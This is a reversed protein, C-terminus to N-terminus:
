VQEADALAKNIKGIIHVPRNDYLRSIAGEVSQKLQKTKDVLERLQPRLGLSERQLVERRRGAAAIMERYKAEQGHKQQLDRMIKDRTRASRLSELRELEGSTLKAIASDVAVKLVDLSIDSSDTLFHGNEGEALRQGLFASLEFLDDLLKQKFALSALKSVLADVVEGCEEEAIEEEGGAGAEAVGIDWCVAPDEEAKETVEIDWSVTPEGGAESGAEAGSIDWSVAPGVEEGVGGAEVGIDWSVTPEGGESDGGATGLDWSISPEEAAVALTSRDDSLASTATALSICCEGQEPALIEGLTELAGDHKGYFEVATGVDGSKIDKVVADFLVPLAKLNKCLRSPEGSDLDETRLDWEECAAASRRRAADARKGYEEEKSLSDKIQLYVRETKRVLAPLEYETAAVLFKAPEVLNRLSRLRSSKSSRDELWAQAKDVHIDIPVDGM